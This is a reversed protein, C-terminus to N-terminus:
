PPFSVELLLRKKKCQFNVPGQLGLRFSKGEYKNNKKVRAAAFVPQSFPFVSAAVIISSFHLASGCALSRLCSTCCNYSSYFPLVM